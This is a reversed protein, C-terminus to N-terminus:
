KMPRKYQSFWVIKGNKMLNIDHYSASDVKRTKYTDNEKNM